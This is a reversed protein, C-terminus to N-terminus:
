IAKRNIIDIVSVNEIARESSSDDDSNDNENTIDRMTTVCHQSFLSQPILTHTHTYTYNFRLLFLSPVINSWCVWKLIMIACKVQTQPRDCANNGVVVAVVVYWVYVWYLAFTLRFIEEFFPVLSSPLLLAHYTRTHANTVVVAPAAIFSFSVYFRIHCFHYSAIWHTYFKKTEVASAASAAAAAAVEELMKIIKLFYKKTPADRIRYAYLTRSYIQIGLWQSM